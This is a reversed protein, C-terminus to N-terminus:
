AATTPHIQWGDGLARACEDPTEVRKMQGDRHLWRPTEHPYNALSVAEDTAEDPRAPREWMHARAAPDKPAEPDKKAM